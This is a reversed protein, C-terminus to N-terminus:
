IKTHCINKHGKMYTMEHFPLSHIIYKHLSSYKSSRSKILDHSCSWNDSLDIINIKDLPGPPVGLDLWQRLISKILQKAHLHHPLHLLTPIYISRHLDMVVGPVAAWFEQGVKQPWSILLIESGFALTDHGVKKGWM